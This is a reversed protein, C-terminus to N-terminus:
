KEDSLDKPLLLLMGWGFRNILASWPKGNARWNQLKQGAAKRKAATEARDALEEEISVHADGVLTDPFMVDIIRNQVLTSLRHRRGGSDGGFSSKRKRKRKRKGIATLTDVSLKADRGKSLFTRPNAQANTYVDYFQALAVRKRLRFLQEGADTIELEQKLDQLARASRPLRRLQDDLHITAKGQWISNLDQVKQDGRARLISITDNIVRVVEGLGTRCTKDWMNGLLGPGKQILAAEANEPSDEHDCRDDSGRGNDDTAEGTINADQKQRGLLNGPTAKQVSSCETDKPM